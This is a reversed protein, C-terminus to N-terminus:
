STGVNLDFIALFYFVEYKSPILIPKASDLMDTVNNLRNDGWRQRCYKTREIALLEDSTERFKRPSFTGLLFSM